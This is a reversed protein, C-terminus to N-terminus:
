YTLTPLSAWFPTWTDFEPQLPVIINPEVLIHDGQKYAKIEIITIDISHNRLWLAVTGLKDRIASGLIIVRQDQNLTPLEDVGAEECFSEYMANFNFDPDGIKGYFNRAQNEFDEFQWKSIYSAYRLSQIDVPDKLHGRKLEVVVSNGLTDVALIDLRDKTDPILVQRGIVLLNEGLMSPDAVIWDELNEELLKEEKLRTEPLKTPGKDSIRWIAM